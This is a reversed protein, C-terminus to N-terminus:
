VGNPNRINVTISKLLTYLVFNFYPRNILLTVLHRAYENVLIEPSPSFFPIDRYQTTKMVLGIQPYKTRRIKRVPLQQKPSSAAVFGRQACRATAAM